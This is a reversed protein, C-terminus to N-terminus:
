IFMSNARKVMGEGGGKKKKGSSDKCTFRVCQCPWLTNVPVGAERLLAAQRPITDKLGMLRQLEIDFIIGRKKCCTSTSCLPSFCGQIKPPIVSFLSYQVKVLTKNAAVRRTIFSLGLSPETKNKHKITLLCM